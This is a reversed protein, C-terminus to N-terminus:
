SRETANSRQAALHGQVIMVATAATVLAGAAFVLGAWLTENM